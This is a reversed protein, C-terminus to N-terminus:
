NGNVKVLQVDDIYVVEGSAFGILELGIELNRVPTGNYAEPIDGTWKIQKWTGGSTSASVVESSFIGSYYGNGDPILNGNADKSYLYLKVTGNTQSQEPTLIYATFEYRGNQSLGVPELCLCFEKRSKSPM